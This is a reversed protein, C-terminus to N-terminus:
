CLSCEGSTHCMGGPVCQQRLKLPRYFIHSYESLVLYKICVHCAEAGNTIRKEYKWLDFVFKSDGTFYPTLICNSIKRFTDDKSAQNMVGFSGDYLPRLAFVFYLKLWSRVELQKIDYGIGFGTNAQAQHLKRVSRQAANM